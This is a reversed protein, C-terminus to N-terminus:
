KGVRWRLYEGSQRLLGSVGGLRLARWGKALLHWWSGQKEVLSPRQHFYAKDPALYPAACFEVLPRTVVGWYYRAAMERFRPACDARLTPNALLTLIAQTVGDVDGPAALRALNQAALTESLVDGGTSLVPLGAWVYDLLRTRFAFRTEIHDLHLSAGIDAELLYNQREEYPVWDNFFVYRDYLGLEKSLAIAQDVAKMRTINPNPRRIGMFFLKVDSRQQLVLPMAKILTLADLWNWIGGGWLIVKDADAITKYVGKLVPRTHQPPKEPLGFPVLDILRRLTPDQQYTYPNVRGVASLMGLWYDRQREDACMFFDGARLQIMLAELDNEYSSIKKLLDADADRQLGELLSPNYMDLVLPKGLEILFPYATLVVGRTIIVDCDQVLARLDRASACVHMSAPLGKAPPASGMPVFPPIILKVGFNQGLVHAFEWYRVGPGAMQEGVVDNPILAITPSSPSAKSLLM